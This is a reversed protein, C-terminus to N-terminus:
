GRPYVSFPAPVTLVAYPRAGARASGGRSRDLSAVQVEMAVRRYGSQVGVRAKDRRLRSSITFHTEGADHPPAAYPDRRPAGM